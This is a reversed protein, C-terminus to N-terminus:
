AKVFSGDDQQYWYDGDATHYALGHETQQYDGDAPLGTHDDVREPAAPTGGPAPPMPLGDPLAGLAPGDDGGRMVMAVIAGIVLVALGIGAYLIWGLGDGDDDDDDVDGLVSREPDDPFADDTDAVGDDDRDPCGVTPETSTGAENVCDDSNDGVGDQDTDRAEASNFPFADAGQAITWTATPDSFGDRDSDICGGRDATSSGPQTPCHDRVDSSPENAFGDNDTDSWSTNDNIFADESDAWGDRDTDLCGLQTGRTAAGAVTPCVDLHDPTGDNDDDDDESPHCGDGDPDLVPTTLWGAYGRPCHDDVDLVQDNDDDLDEPDEDKCGDGDHDTSGNSVWGTVGKTCADRGDNVGDNDDDADEGEDWCGDADHDITLNSTWDLRGTQCRDDVDLVGDGDDDLDEGADRCGDDDRDSVGSATWNIEGLPCQDVVDAVQDNDDDLDEGADECGDGDHDTVNSATWGTAGMPCDELADPQLDNDLDLDEAGDQCGDADVDTSANALWGRDGRPCGDVGDLVGDNDDDDDRDSDRCGDQDHDEVSSARWGALVERCLDNVDSITDNDDDLDEWADQCGDGDLDTANNSTWNNDGVPCRDLADVLGDADDDDDCEDGDGDLDRDLQPVNPDVPCNDFADAIGDGDVDEMSELMWVGNGVALMSTSEATLTTAFTGATVVAGSARVHVGVPIPATTPIGARFVRTGTWNGGEQWLTWASHQGSTGQALFNVEFRGLVSGQFIWDTGNLTAATPWVQAGSLSDTAVAAVWTHNAAVTAFYADYAGSGMTLTTNGFTLDIIFAGFILAGGQGDAEVGNCREDNGNILESWLLSGNAAQHAIFVDATAFTPDAATINQGDYWMTGVLSTCWWVGGVGDNTIMAPQSQDTGKTPVIWNWSGNAAQQALFFQRDSHNTLTSHAGLTINERSAGVITAVGSAATVDYILSANDSAIVDLHTWTWTADLRAVFGNTQNWNTANLSGFSTNGDVTGVVILGGQGDLTASFATENALGGATIWRTINGTANQELIMVDTGGALSANVGDVTANTTVTAVLWTSGNGLDLLDVAADQGEGDIMFGAVSVLGRGAASMSDGELDPELDGRVDPDVGMLAMGASSLVLMALLLWARGLRGAEAM